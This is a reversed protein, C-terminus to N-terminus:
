FKTGTWAKSGRMVDKVEEVVESMRSPMSTPFPATNQLRILGKTEEKHLPTTSSTTLSSDGREPEPAVCAAAPASFSSPPSSLPLHPLCLPGPSSVPQLPVCYPSQSMHTLGEEKTCGRIISCLINGFGQERTM